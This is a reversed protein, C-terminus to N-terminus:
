SSSIVVGIALVLPGGLVQVAVAPTKWSVSGSLLEIEVNVSM